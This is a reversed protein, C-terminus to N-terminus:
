ASLDRCRPTCAELLKRLYNDFTFHSEVHRCANEALRRRLDDDAILRQIQLRLEASDGPAYFLVERESVYDMVQFTRAAIVPVHMQAAELLAIQGLLRQHRQGFLPVVAIAAQAIFDRYRAFPLEYHVEVNAPLNDGITARDSAGAVLVTRWPLDRVADLFCPFDRHRGAALVYPSAIVPPRVEKRWTAADTYVHYPIFVFRHSPTGFFTSYLRVEAESHVIVVDVLATLRRFFLRRMTRRLRSYMTPKTPAPESTDFYFEHQVLWLRPRFISRLLAFLFALRLDGYLLVTDYRGAVKGLLLVKLWLSRRQWSPIAETIPTAHAFWEPDTNLTPNLSLIRM